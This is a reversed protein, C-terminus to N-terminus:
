KQKEKALSGVAALAALKGETKFPRGSKRESRALALISNETVFPHGEFVVRELGGASMLQHVRQNSIGLLRAAIVPPVPLGKVEALDAFDSFREWLGRVQSKERRPLEATFPFETITAEFM